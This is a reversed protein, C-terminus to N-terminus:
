TGVWRAAAASPAPARRPSRRPSGADQRADGREAGELRAAVREVREGVVREGVLLNRRRDAFERPAHSQRPERAGPALRQSARDAADAGVPQEREVRGLRRQDRRARRLGEREGAVEGASISSKIM